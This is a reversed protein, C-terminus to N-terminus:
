SNRYGGSFHQPESGRPLNEGAACSPMICDSALVSLRCAESWTTQQFPENTDSFVHHAVTLVGSL